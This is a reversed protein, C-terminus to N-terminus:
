HTTPMGLSTDGNARSAAEIAVPLIVAPLRQTCEIAYRDTMLTDQYVLEATEISQNISHHSGRKSPVVGSGAAIPVRCFVGLGQLASAATYLDKSDVVVDAKPPPQLAAQRSQATNPDNARKIAGSRLAALAPHVLDEGAQTAAAAAAAAASRSFLSVASGAPPWTGRSRVSSGGGSPKPRSRASWM